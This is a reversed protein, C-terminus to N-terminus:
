TQPSYKAYIEKAQRAVIRRIRAPKLVEVGKGFSLLYGYLWDNEPLTITVIIKEGHRAMNEESLWEELLPELQAEFALELEVMPEATHRDNEGGLCELVVERPQFCEGTLVPQKLRLLKFHRYNQRASCWAYLYWNHGKLLLSYPEVTRKTKRGAADTYLFALVSTETIAKRIVAMREKIRDAGGWPSPDIVLRSVKLNLAQLQAPTLINKLKELLITHGSDAFAAAYGKLMAILSAMEDDSLVSRDLRYGEMLAIGGNVGRYTVVPIGALNISEVDRYITRM